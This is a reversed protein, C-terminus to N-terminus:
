LWEKGNRGTRHWNFLRQCHVTAATQQTMPGDEQQDEVFDIV